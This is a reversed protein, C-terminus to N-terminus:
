YIKWQLKAGKPNKIYNYVEFEFILFPPLYVKIIATVLLVIGTIGNRPSTTNGYM